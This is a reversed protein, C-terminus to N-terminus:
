MPRKSCVLGVTEAPRFRERDGVRRASSRIPEFCGLRGLQMFGLSYRNKRPLPLVVVVKSVVRYGAVCRSGLPSYQTGVRYGRQGKGHRM